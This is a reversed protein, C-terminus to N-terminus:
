EIVETAAALVNPPITLGLVNAIKRNILCELKTPQEVPLDSPKAGRLIKDVYVASRRCMEQQDPGYSMLAGTEFTERSYACLPLRRAIALKPIIARGQFAIGANTVTVVQMRARVMADFTPELEELSRAEFVQIILGLEAAAAQFVEIYM